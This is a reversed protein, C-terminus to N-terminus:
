DDPLGLLRAIIGADRPVSEASAAVPIVRYDMAQRLAEDVHAGGDDVLSLLEAIQESDLGAIRLHHVDPMAAVAPFHTAALVRDGADMRRRIVRQAISAGEEPHTGRGLEDLLWLRPPPGDFLSVVRRIERGFASLGTTGVSHPEEAGVYIVATMPAFRFSDASIPLAHQACWQACGVLQLLASKGGMNPGTVVAANDPLAVDVAQVREDGLAEIFRPLRGGALHLTGADSWEGFTGRWRDRLECKAIRVDLDALRGAVDDLLDAYSRVRSSLRRMLDREIAWMAEKIQRHRDHLEDLETDRLIWTRGASMLRRDRQLVELDCDDPPLFRGRVDFRGGHTAVVAAELDARHAREAKQARRVHLRAEALREDLEAALHFRPTPRREPHITHMLTSVDSAWSPPIFHLSQDVLALLEAGWYLFRKVEFWAVEDLDEGARLTAIPRRLDPLHVLAAAVANADVTELWRAVDLTQEIEFRWAAEDGPGFTKLTLLRERGLRSRVGVRELVDDVGLVAATAADVFQPQEVPALTSGM